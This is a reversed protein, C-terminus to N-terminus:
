QCNGDNELLGSTLSRDTGDKLSSFHATICFHQAFVAVTAVVVNQSLRRLDSQLFM